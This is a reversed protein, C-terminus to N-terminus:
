LACKPCQLTLFCEWRPELAKDILGDYCPCEEAEDCGDYDREAEEMLRLYELWRPPFNASASYKSRRDARSSTCDAEDDLPCQEGGGEREM